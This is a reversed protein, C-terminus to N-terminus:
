FQFYEFGAVATSVTTAVPREVLWVLDPGPIGLPVQFDHDWTGAGVHMITVGIQQQPINTSWPNVSHNINTQGAVVTAGASFNIIYCTVGSPVYHHAWYTQNDSAAISGWISGGGATATYLNITGANGGSSGVQSVVMNEIFAIDTNVTNVATTGNLTVTESKLQFSTNLYNITVQQAGTGASTDNTSTSKLSRQANTGQPTYATARVVKGATSSTGVYGQARGVVANPILGLMIADEFDITILDGFTDSRMTRVKSGDWTGVLVPNTTPTTGASAAGAVVATSPLNQGNHAAVISNLTTQDGSSLAAKFYFSTQTPATVGYTIYDLATVITSTQVAYTLSDLAPVMGSPLSTFASLAYDYESDAM